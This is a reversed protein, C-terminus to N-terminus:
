NKGSLPKWLRTAIKCTRIVARGARRQLTELKNSNVEGYCEWVGFCYELTPRVISLYIVNTSHFTLFRRLRGLLGIRKGAKSILSDIYENWSLSQDFTVELHKFETVRKILSGSLFIPFNDVNSLKKHRVLFCLIVNIFLCKVKLWHERDRLKRNITTVITSVQPASFFLVTDDAYMLVSCKTIANPLDNLHLIFLLPGLISGQPVGAFMSEAASTVGQFEIVQTRDHLYNKLWQLERHRVGLRSSKNLLIITSPTLTKACTSLCQM